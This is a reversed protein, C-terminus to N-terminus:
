FDEQTGNASAIEELVALFREPPHFSFNGDEHIYPLPITADNLQWYVEPSISRPGKKYLNFTTPIFTNLTQIVSNDNIPYVLVGLSNPVSFLTGYEGVLDKNQHIRYVNSAAFPSDEEYSILSGGHPLPIAVKEPFSKRFTNLLAIEFLDTSTIGWKNIDKKTVTVLTTPLDVVLVSLINQFHSWLMVNDIDGIEDFYSRPYLRITISDKVEDFVMVKERFKEHEKQALFFNEFHNKIIQPWQEEKAASCIDWLNSLGFVDDFGEVIMTQNENHLPKKGLDQFYLDVLKKFMAYKQEETQPKPKFLFDFM